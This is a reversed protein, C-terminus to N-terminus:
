PIQFLTLLVSTIEELPMEEYRRSIYAFKDPSSIVVGDAGAEYYRHSDKGQQDIEFGPHAHRKIVGVLLGRKKLEVTLGVVLDSKFKKPPGVICIVPQIDTM